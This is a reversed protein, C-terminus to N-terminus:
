LLISCVFERCFSSAAGIRFPPQTVPEFFYWLGVNYSKTTWYREILLPINHGILITGHSSLEFDSLTNLLIFAAVVVVYGSSLRSRIGERFFYFPHFFLLFTHSLFQFLLQPACQSNQVSNLRTFFEWRSWKIFNGNWQDNQNIYANSTYIHLDCTNIVITRWM